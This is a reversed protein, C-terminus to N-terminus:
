KTADSLGAIFPRVYTTKVTFGWRRKRCCLPTMAPPALYVLRRMTPRHLTSM